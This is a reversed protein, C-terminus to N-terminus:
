INDRGDYKGKSDFGATFPNIRRLRGVSKHNKNKEYLGEKSMRKQAQAPQKNFSTSLKRDAEQKELTFCFRPLNEDKPSYARKETIKRIHERQERGKKMREVSKEVDRSVETPRSKIFSNHNKSRHIDPHFVCEHASREYEMEAHSRNVRSKTSSAALKYLREGRHHYSDVTDNLEVELRRVNSVNASSNTRPKFTCNELDREVNEQRQKSLKSETLVGQHILIDAHTVKRSLPSTSRSNATTGEIEHVQKERHKSALHRSYNLIDPQFRLDSPTHREKNIHPTQAYLRNYYFVDYTQSIKHIEDETFTIEAKQDFTGFSIKTDHPQHGEKGITEITKLNDSQFSFKRTLLNSIGLSTEQNNQTDLTHETIGPTSGFNSKRSGSIRNQSNVATNKQARPKISEKPIDRQTVSTMTVLNLNELTRIGSTNDLITDSDIETNNLTETKIVNTPSTMGNPTEHHTNSNSTTSLGMIALLFTLLNARSVGNYLDGKLISWMTHVLCKDHVYYSSSTDHNERIFGIKVLFEYLQTSSSFVQDQIPEFFNNVEEEFEKLFKRILLKSSHGLPSLNPISFSSRASEASKHQRRIADQYLINEVKEGRKM